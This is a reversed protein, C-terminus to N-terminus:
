LWLFKFVSDGNINVHSRVVMSGLWQKQKMLENNEWFIQKGVLFVGGLNKNVWYFVCIVLQLHRMGIGLRTPAQIHMLHKSFTGFIYFICFFFVKYLDLPLNKKTVKKPFTRPLGCNRLYGSLVWCLFSHWHYPMAGYLSSAENIRSFVTEQLDFLYPFIWSPHGGWM